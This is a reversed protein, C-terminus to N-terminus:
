PILVIKIQKCMLVYMLKQRPCWSLLCNKPTARSVDWHTRLSDKTSECRYKTRDVQPWGLHMNIGLIFLSLTHQSVWQTGGVSLCHLFFIPKVYYHFFHANHHMIFVNFILFGAKWSNSCYSEMAKSIFSRSLFIFPHMLASKTLQEFVASLLVPRLFSAM